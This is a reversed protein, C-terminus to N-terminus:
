QPMPPVPTEQGTPSSAQTSEALTKLKALGREYDPGVMSDLALGFYRGVLSGSFDTTLTWTVRTGADTPTVVMKSTTPTDMGLDLASTVSRGPVVAIIEQSGRGVDPNESSWEM